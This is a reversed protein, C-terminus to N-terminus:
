IEIDELEVDGAPAAAGPMAPAADPGAPRRPGAVMSYVLRHTPGLDFLADILGPQVSGIGCLGLGVEPAAMTLLQAMAGAEIQCFGLSQDGYLPEIAALEAVLYLAFAGAQFVPRNVFYDYGDPSLEGGTGVPVLRHAYPDHYYGGGPVGTVRDPKVYLYTQVPYCGGASGYQYKPAGALERQALCALLGALTGAAVPGEAFQRVSRYEAYRRAFDPDAPVALALGATGDAFERRGHGRAKFAARAVPDDVEGASAGARASGVGAGGPGPTGVASVRQAAAVIAQRSAHERYMGLLDALTPTRMLQALRPRFGLESALANGIRVIDISTAGLHLLNAAPAIGAQALVAEVIGVVRAEAPTVPAVVPEGAVDGTM